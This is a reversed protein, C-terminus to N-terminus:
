ERGGGGVLAQFRPDDRIFDFDPDKQALQRDGPAATLAEELLSLAEDVNGCIAEFCARNYASEQSMLPRAVAVEAAYAEERGLRRYCAALSSHAFAFQPDLAVAQQYAALAEEDRGLVRYVTGLGHHPDALQPDLAVAQQYAALAEEYRGLARYM